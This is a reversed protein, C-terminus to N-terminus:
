DRTEKPNWRFLESSAYTVKSALIQGLEIKLAESSISEIGFSDSAAVQSTAYCQEFSKHLTLEFLLPFISSINPLSFTSITSPLFARGASSVPIRPAIQFIVEGHDKAMDQIPQTVM